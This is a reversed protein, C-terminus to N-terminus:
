ISQVGIIKEQLQFDFSLDSKFIYVTSDKASFLSVCIENQMVGQTVVAKAPPGM